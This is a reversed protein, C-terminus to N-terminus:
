PSRLSLAVTSIQHTFKCSVASPIISRNPVRSMGSPAITATTAIASCTAFNNPVRTAFGMKALTRKHARCCASCICALSRLDSGFIRALLPDDVYAGLDVPTATQAQTQDATIPM